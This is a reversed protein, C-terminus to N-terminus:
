SLQYYEPAFDNALNSLFNFESSSNSNDASAQHASANHSQQHPDTYYNAFNTYTETNTEAQGTSDPPTIVAATAAAIATATTTMGPAPFPDPSSVYATPISSAEGGQHVHLQSTQDYYHNTHCKGTTRYDGSNTHLSAQHSVYSESGHHQQTQQHPQQMENYYHQQQQQGPQLSVATHGHQAVLNDGTAHYTGSGPYGYGGSSMYGDTAAGDTQPNSSYSQQQQQQQQHQGTSPYPISSSQQMNRAHYSAHYSVPNSGGQSQYGNYETNPYQTQQQHFQMSNANYVPRASSSSATRAHHSVRSPVAQSQRNYLPHMENSYAIRQQYGAIDRSCYANQSQNHQQNAAAVNQRTNMPLGNRYDLNTTGQHYVNQQQQNFHPQATSPINRASHSPMAPPNAVQPHIMAGTMAGPVSSTSSPSSRPRQMYGVHGPPQIGLPSGQQLQVSVPTGPTSSPTLSRSSAQGPLAPTSVTSDPMALLVGNSTVACLEKNSSPPSKKSVTIQHKPPNPSKHGAEIKVRVENAVGIKKCNISPSTVESGDQSRSDEDAIMKEFSSSVSNTSGVSSAGNSNTSFGVSSNNNNNNNNNNTASPTNNNNNSSSGTRGAGLDTIEGLSSGVDGVGSIDCNHCSKKEDEDMSLLKDSKSKEVGDSSTGDKEDGDEKSLTQRKHKMRRNQFWVKVQRETLDLSAAIEIRRPRCLYKNFHFEKELELLQTNTYATRLRRPLGNEQQNSKRTTKKEKMWPYEPVNVGSPDAVAHPDMMTHYGPHHTGPSMPGGAGPSHQLPGDGALQPLATMFEAMSPQSNIFGTEAPGCSPDMTPHSGHQPLGAGTGAGAAVSALWFGGGVGTAGSCGDNALVPTTPRTKDPQEDEECEVFCGLEALRLGVTAQHVQLRNDSEGQADRSQQKNRM